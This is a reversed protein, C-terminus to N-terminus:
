EGPKFKHMYSKYIETVKDPVAVEPWKALDYEIITTVEPVKPWPLAWGIFWFIPFALIHVSFAVCTADFLPWHEIVWAKVRKTLLPLLPENKAPFAHAPETKSSKAANRNFLLPMSLWTNSAISLFVIFIIENRM